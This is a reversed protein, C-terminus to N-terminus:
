GCGVFAGVLKAYHAFKSHQSYPLYRFWEGFSNRYDVVVSFDLVVDKEQQSKSRHKKAVLVVFLALIAHRM